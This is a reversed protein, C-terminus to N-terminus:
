NVTAQKVDATAAVRLPVSRLYNNIKEINRFKITKHVVFFRNLHLIYGSLQRTGELIIRQFFLYNLIIYSLSIYM